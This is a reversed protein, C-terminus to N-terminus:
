HSPLVSDPLSPKHVRADILRKEVVISLPFVPLQSMDVFTSIILSSVM